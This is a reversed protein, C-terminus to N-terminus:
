GVLVRFHTTLRGADDLVHFALAPPQGYDIWDPWDTTAADYEWPLRLTSLVGPAVLLPRGAFSTAAATHAHGCLVAAVQPYDALVAALRDAARLRLGDMPPTHLIAPPHHFAVFVPLGPPSAALTAALWALTEDELRGESRGPVSSDCLVYVAKATRHVTNVPADGAPEGLLGQRFPSRADHNGPCLFLPHRSRLTEHAEAYEAPLGHDTIDGTVLVADLDATLGDLHRLVARIRDAHHESGNFHLDSIHAILIM